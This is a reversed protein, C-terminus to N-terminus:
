PNLWYNVKLVLINDPQARFLARRDREFDFDGLPEYGQRSQQWALYLTSGRRWEWRLVANGRLARVNFDRDPVVFSEQPGAGDPDIRYGPQGNSVFREADSYTDFRYTGPAAFEAPAGYEGSSILPQAYMELSLTPSFTLNLRTELGVETQDIPAFVYRRGYTETAAPDAISSVYQAVTHGRFLRPGVSLNWRSSTKIGLTPDIEYMWGGHENRSGFAGGQFTIARRPDSVFTFGGDWGAPRAAIPGGRTLRDDNSRLSYNASAHISWFNLHRFSMLTRNWNAIRQGAYNYEWRSSGTVSWSRWFSGPQNEMYTVQAEADRRDTRYNFGIDNVEYAPTTTAITAQGRWHQGAQRAVSLNAALGTLSTADTDVELHDADPRQFYHNSLLQTLKIAAEDGEVHSVAVAGRLAWGRNDWEHRFDLGGTYAASRLMAQEQDSELDRHVATFIGGLASAGGRMDRRARGVFYNTLPEASMEQDEDSVDRYRATERQTLAEMVGVSWGSATRGSLKAAGLITTATPVDAFPTGPGLQPTRGIRRTYFLQGGGGSPFGFIESGEIFFPRKEQFFTEYVGLNIVAPDVEVQGFDPNITADLTLNSTARYKVDVGASIDHEADGRYPNLGPDVYEGRAVSYPLVELRKGPRVGALGALHGYKPVGGQESKPIFTSVSYERLRGIMRELQIGWTQEQDSSFRLQSFPIRYEATWGEDDVTTAVDWVPDWSNDDNEIVKIEDRKVGAPNVDFGFATRHDHYSDIMVGFWDSDGLPMDRRGLRGTVRGDDHLRVGVYLADDDYLIRAETRQTSPLGEQPDIQTFESFVPAAAWAADDLRGDIRITQDTRVATATPHADHEDPLQQAALAGPVLLLAPILRHIRM